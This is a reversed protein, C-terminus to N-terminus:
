RFILYVTSSGLRRCRAEGKGSEAFPRVTFNVFGNSSFNGFHSVTSSCRWHLPSGGIFLRLSLIELSALNFLFVKVSWTSCVPAKTYGAHSHSPSLDMCYNNHYARASLCVAVKSYFEVTDLNPEENSWISTSNPGAYPICKILDKSQIWRFRNVLKMFLKSTKPVLHITFCHSHDLSVTSVLRKVGCPM